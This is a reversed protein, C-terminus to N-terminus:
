GEKISQNTDIQTKTLSMSVFCVSQNRHCCKNSNKILIIGKPWTDGRFISHGIETRTEKPNTPRKIFPKVESELVLKHWWMWSPPIVTWEGPKWSAVTAVSILRAWGLHPRFVLRVHVGGHDGMQIKEVNLKAYSCYDSLFPHMVRSLSTPM